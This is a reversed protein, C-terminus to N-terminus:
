RVAARAEGLETWDLRGRGKLYTEGWIQLNLLRWLRDTADVKGAAHAAILAELARRDLYDALLGGPALLIESAQTQMPGRLWSKLPTPFGMKKRYIIDHPILTEAVKKFV